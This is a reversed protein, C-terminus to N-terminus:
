DASVTKKGEENLAEGVVYADCELDFANREQTGIKGFDEEILDEIPKTNM